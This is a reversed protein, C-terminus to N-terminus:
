LPRDLLILADDGPALPAPKGTRRRGDGRLLPAAAGAPTYRAEVALDDSGAPVPLAFHAPLRASEFRREVIPEGGGAPTVRLELAGTAAVDEARELHLGVVGSLVGPAFAEPGWRDLIRIAAMLGHQVNDCRIRDDHETTRVGGRVRERETVYYLDVDDDLQLQLLSRLGRLIARRYARARKADGTAEAMSHADILGELYVGTSSAHPPGFPRDPDYFRGQTDPHAPQERWQQVGLLWDNMEFVFAALQRDRTRQWVKAYAMTHWPVFAPNRNKDDLHWKRYYRFSTMFRQELEPAEGRALLEAWLLLTEGPYFNQQGGRERPEYFSIFSGDARWLEDIAKRLAAEQRQWKARNPHEVIALTALSMAGLKATGDLLIIGAEGRERYYRGLNHDINNEVRRWLADDRRAAAVRGMAITAMWQRVTNDLGDPEDGTSPELIYTMRGDAGLNAFMWDGGLKVFREVRARTVDGPAVLENGRLMRRATPEDGLLVLVQEAEFTRVVLREGRAAAGAHEDRFRQLLKAAAAARAIMATPSVREVATGWSMELGLIGLDLNRIPSRWRDPALEVFSHAFAIEVADVRASNTRGRLRRIEDRLPALSGDEVIWGEELLRGGARLAVYTPLRRGHGHFALPSRRTSRGSALADSAARAIRELDADTLAIAADTRARRSIPAVPRDGANLSAVHAVALPPLVLLAVALARGTRTGGDRWRRWPAQAWLPLLVGRVLLMAAVAVLACWWLAAIPTQVAALAQQVGNLGTLPHGELGRLVLPEIPVDPPAPVM